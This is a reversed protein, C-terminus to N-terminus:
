KNWENAIYIRLPCLCFCTNGSPLSFVCERGYRELCELFESKGRDKVEGVSCFESKYCEFDRQCEVESIVEEIEKKHREKIEM